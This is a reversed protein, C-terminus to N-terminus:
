HLKCKRNKIVSYGSIDQIAKAILRYVNCGCDAKMWLEKIMKM